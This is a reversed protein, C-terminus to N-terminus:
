EILRAIGIGTEGYNNGNYLMYHEGLHEFVHPYCIMKSDWETESAMLNVQDDKRQWKIGDKSSAYGLTYKTSGHLRKSYWMHYYSGFRQVSPRSLGIENKELDIITKDNTSWNYGDNSCASKIVHRMSSQNEGWSLNSGYYMIMKNEHEKTVFPYSLSFLDHQNRDIVPVKLTKFPGNLNAATALGISNQWPVTIRLNWGVYYLYYQNKYPIICGMSCGSDDFLGPEGPSILPKESINVISFNNGLDIDVYGIHSRNNDDRSSFFVRFVEESINIAFPNSAHSKFWYDRSSPDFIRGVKHWKM